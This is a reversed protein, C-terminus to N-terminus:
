LTFDGGTEAEAPMGETEYMERLTDQGAEEVSMNGEHEPEQFTDSLIGGYPRKVDEKKPYYKEQMATYKDPSSRQLNLKALDYLDGLPLNSRGADKKLEVMGPLLDNFDPRVLNGDAGREGMLTNLMAESKDRASSQQVGNLSETLPGIAKQMSEQVNAIISQQMIEFKQTESMMALEDQSYEGLGRIREENAVEQFQHANAEFGGELKGMSQQMQAQNTHLTQIAGGFQEMQGQMKTM